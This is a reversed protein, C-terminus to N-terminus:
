TLLAEAAELRATEVTGADATTAAEAEMEIVAVTANETEIVAALPRTERGIRL